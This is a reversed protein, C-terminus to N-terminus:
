AHGPRNYTIVRAEVDSYLSEDYYRRFRSGPTGHLSFVPFGGPDGWEAFTLMRGDHATAVQLGSIVGPDYLALLM